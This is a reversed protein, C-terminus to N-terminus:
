SRLLLAAYGGDGGSPSPLWLEERELRWDTREALLARVPDHGEDPEISCLSYVLRGGPRVLEVAAALLRAQDQALRRQGRRDYRWRAEPRRRLVGTNSCPADVLVADFPGADRLDTAAYRGDRREVRISRLGLREANQTVRRLRAVKLDTALVDAADDALEALHTTKGGPAACLDLVREGPRPALLPAVRQATLDQISFRGARWPATHSFRERGAGLLLGGALDTEAAAVGCAALDAALLAPERLRNARAFLPPPDNAARCLELAVEPGHAELWAEVLADPLSYLVGLRGALRREGTGLPDGELRLAIARSLPLRPDEPGLPESLAERGAIAGELAELARAVHARVKNSEGLRAAEAELAARDEGQFLLRYALLELLAIVRPSRGKLARKQVAGLLVGLTRRHRLTGHTWATLRRAGHGAGQGSLDQLSSMLSRPDRSSLVDLVRSLARVDHSM